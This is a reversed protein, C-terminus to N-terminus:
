PTKNLFETIISDCKKYHFIIRETKQKSMIKLIILIFFIFALYGNDKIAEHNDEIFDSLLDLM